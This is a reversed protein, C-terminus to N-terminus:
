GRMGADEGLREGRRFGQAIPLREQAQRPHPDEGFRFAKQQDVALHGSREGDAAIENGVRVQGRQKALVTDLPQVGRVRVEPLEGEQLHPVREGSGAGDVPGSGPGTARAWGDM